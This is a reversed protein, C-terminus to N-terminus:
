LATITPLIEKAPLFAPLSNLDLPLLHNSVSAFYTNLFDPLEDPKIVHDDNYISSKSYFLQKYTTRKYLSVPFIARTLESIPIWINLLKKIPANSV